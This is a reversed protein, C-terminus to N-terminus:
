VSGGSRGVVVAGGFVREALHFLAQFTTTMAAYGFLESVPVGHVGGWTYMAPYTRELRYVWDGNFATHFWEWPIMFAWGMGVYWLWFAPTRTAARFAPVLWYGVLTSSFGLGGAMWYSYDTVGPRSWAFHAAAFAVLTFGMVWPFLRLLAPHPETSWRRPTVHVFLAWLTMHFLGFLPYFLLEMAPMDSGLWLHRTWGWWGQGERTVWLLYPKGPAYTWLGVEVCKNQLWITAPILTAMIVFTMQGRYRAAYYPWALIVGGLMYAVTSGEYTYGKLYLALGGVVCAALMALHVPRTLNWRGNPWLPRSWNM